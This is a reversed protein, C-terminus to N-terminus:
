ILRTTPWGGCTTQLHLISRAAQRGAATTGSCHFRRGVTGVIRVPNDQLCSPLSPFGHERRTRSIVEVYEFWGHFVGQLQQLAMVAITDLPYGASDPMEQADGIPMSSGPSGQEAKEARKGGDPQSHRKNEALSGGVASQRADGRGKRFSVDHICWQSLRTRANHIVSSQLTKGDAASRSAKRVM